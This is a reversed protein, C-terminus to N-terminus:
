ADHNIELNLFQMEKFDYDIRWYSAGGDCVVIYYHRWDSNFKESLNNQPIDPLKQPIIFNLHVLRKGDKNHGVVQCKYDDWKALIERIKERESDESITKELKKLYLRTEQIIHPVESKPPEWIGEFGCEQSFDTKALIVWNQNEQTGSVLPNGSTCSVSILAAFVLLLISTNKVIVPTPM